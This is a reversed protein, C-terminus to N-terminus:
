GERRCHVTPVLAVAVALLASTARVYKKNYTLGRFKQTDINIKNDM